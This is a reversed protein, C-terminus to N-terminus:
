TARRRKGPRPKESPSVVARLALVARLAENVSKSNPFPAAVDPDLRRLPAGMALRGYFRGRSAKSWDYRELSDVSPLEGKCSGYLKAFDKPWPAGHDRGQVLGVLVASVSKGTRRAETKLRKALDDPVDITLQAVCALM